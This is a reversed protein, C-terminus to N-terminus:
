SLLQSPLQRKPILYTYKYEWKREISGNKCSINVRRSFKLLRGSPFKWGGRRWSGSGPRLSFASSTSLISLKNQNRWCCYSNDLFYQRHWWFPQDFLPLFIGQWYQWPANFAPVNSETRPEEIGGGLVLFSFLLFLIIIRKKLESGTLVWRLGLTGRRAQHTTEPTLLSLDSIIVGRCHWVRSM